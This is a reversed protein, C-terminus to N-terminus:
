NIRNTPILPKKILVKYCLDTSKLYAWGDECVGNQSHGKVTPKQHRASRLPQKSNNHTQKVDTSHTSAPLECVYPKSEYCSRAEWQGESLSLAVCFSRSDNAPQHQDWNKFSFDDGDIWEWRGRKELDNGGIWFNDIQMVDFAEVGGQAVFANV